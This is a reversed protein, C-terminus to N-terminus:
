GIGGTGGMQLEQAVLPLYRGPVEFPLAARFGLNAPAKSKEFNTLHDSLFPRVESLRHKGANHQKRFARERGIDGSSL